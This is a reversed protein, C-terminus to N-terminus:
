KFIRQLSVIEPSHPFIGRVEKERVSEIFGAPDDIPAGGLDWFAYRWWRLNLMKDVIQEPLRMKKITAPNGAVVAYPPVDKTVVSCAGVVAGDGIQVGQMIFAGHGIYVDNGIVTKAASINPASPRFDDAAPIEFNTVDRYNQYFVPSTSAWSVPHSGRGIQVNEGISTYRGIEVAFYYGSVAYSFAGLKFSHHASMWKFSCPPEFFSSAPLTFPAAHLTSVGRALLANKMEDNIIIM